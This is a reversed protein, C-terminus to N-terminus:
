RKHRSSDDGARAQTRARSRGDTVGRALEVEDDAPRKLIGGASRIEYQAQCVKNALALIFHVACADDACDLPQSSPARKILLLMSIWRFSAVNTGSTRLGVTRRRSSPARSRLSRTSPPRVTSCAASCSINEMLLSLRMSVPWPTAVRRSM